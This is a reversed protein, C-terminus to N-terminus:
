ASSRVVLSMSKATETLFSRSARYISLLNVAKGLYPIYSWFSDVLGMQARARRITLCPELGFDGVADLGMATGQVVLAVAQHDAIAM